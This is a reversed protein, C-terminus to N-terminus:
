EWEFTMQAFLSFYKSISFNFSRSLFQLRSRSRRVNLMKWRFIWEGFNLHCSQAARLKEVKEGENKTVSVKSADYLSLFIFRSNGESFIRYKVYNLWTFFNFINFLSESSFPYVSLFFPDNQNSKESYSPSFFTQSLISLSTRSFQFSSFPM